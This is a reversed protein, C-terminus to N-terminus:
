WSHYNLQNSYRGTVGPTAPELGTWEALIEKYILSKCSARQPLQPSKQQKKTKCHCLNPVVKCDKAIERLPTPVVIACTPFQPPYLTTSEINAQNVARKTTDNKILKWTEDRSKALCASAM